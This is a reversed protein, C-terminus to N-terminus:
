PHYEVVSTKDDSRVLVLIRNGSPAVWLANIEGQNLTDKWVLKGTTYDWLCILGATDASALWRGNGSLTIACVPAKHQEWQQTEKGAVTDWELILGDDNGDLVRSGDHTFISRSLFTPSTTEDKPPEDSASSESPPPSDPGSPTASAAPSSVVTDSSETSMWSTAFLIICVIAVVGAGAVGWLLYKQVFYLVTEWPSSASALAALFEDVNRFPEDQPAAMLRRICVEVEPPIDRRFHAIPLVAPVTDPLDARSFIGGLDDSFPPTGTLLTYFVAGLSFLDYQHALEDSTSQYPSGYKSLKALGFDLIKVQGAPTVWINTPKLDCHFLKIRHAAQLGHAIQRVIAIADRLNMPGKALKGGESVRLSSHYRMRRALDTGTLMEMALYPESDHRDADYIVGVNRQSIGKAKKTDAEFLTWAEPAYDVYATIVKLAVQRNTRTDVAKYVMSERKSRLRKGLHQGRTEAGVVVDASGRGLRGLIHYPGIQSPMRAVDGSRAGSHVGTSTGSSYVGSIDPSM